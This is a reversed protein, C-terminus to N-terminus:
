EKGRIAAAITRGCAPDAACMPHRERAYYEAVNACRERERATAAQWCDRFLGTLQEGRDRIKWVKKMSPTDPNNVWEEFGDLKDDAM